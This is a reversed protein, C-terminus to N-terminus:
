ASDVTDGVGVVNSEVVDSSPRLAAQTAPLEDSGFALSEDLTEGGMPATCASVLASIAVPAFWGQRLHM